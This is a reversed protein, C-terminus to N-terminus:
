LHILIYLYVKLNQCTSFNKIRQPSIQLLITFLLNDDGQEVKM